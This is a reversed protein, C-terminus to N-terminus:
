ASTADPRRRDAIWQASLPLILAACAWQYVSLGLWWPPEPRIFEVLFRFGAYAIMYLKLRQLRLGGRRMLGFLVAAMSLHFAVEYLQTPHRRVHDGFDIGWPLSTEVGYCCGAFFCGWRGVSMALALPLAFTDGTKARIGLGLKALEVALYAAGMGAVITKGDTIWAAGSFWSEEGALVFPLKAGLVGGTFAAVALATRKWWPLTALSEPKRIFPRAAVATALALGMFLGYAARPSM